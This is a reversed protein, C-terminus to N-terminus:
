RGQAEEARKSVQAKLTQVDLPKCSVETNGSGKLFDYTKRYAADDMPNPEPSIALEWARQRSQIDSVTLATALGAGSATALAVGCPLLSWGGTFIIGLAAGVCLYVAGAGAGLMVAGGGMGAGLLNRDSRGDDWAKLNVNTLRGAALEHACFVLRNPKAPHPVFEVLLQRGNHTSAVSEADSNLPTKNRCSVSAMLLLAAATNRTNM